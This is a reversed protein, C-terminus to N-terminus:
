VLTKGHLNQQAQGRKTITICSGNSDDAHRNEAQYVKEHFLYWLVPLELRTIEANDLRAIVTRQWLSM